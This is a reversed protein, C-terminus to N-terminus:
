PIKPSFFLFYEKRVAAEFKDPDVHSYLQVLKFRSYLNGQWYIALVKGESILKVQWKALKLGTIFLLRGKRKEINARHHRRQNSNYQRFKRKAAFPRPITHYPPATDTFGLIWLITHKKLSYTTERLNVEKSTIPSCQVEIALHTFPYKLALDIRKQINKAEIMLERKPERNRAIRAVMKLWMKRKWQLGRHRRILRTWKPPCMFTEHIADVIEWHLSLNYESCNAYACDTRPLHRFHAKVRGNRSNIYIARTGCCPTFYGGAAAVSPNLGRADWRRGTDDVVWIM